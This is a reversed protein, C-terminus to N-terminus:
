RAEPHLKISFPLSSLRGGLETNRFNAMDVTDLCVFTSPQSWAGTGKQAVHSM